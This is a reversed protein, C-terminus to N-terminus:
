FSSNYFSNITTQRKEIGNTASGDPKVTALQFRIRTDGSIFPLFEARVQSHDLNYSSYDLNLRNIQKAILLSDTNETVTRYLVHFVVQVTWVKGDFDSSREDGMQVLEKIDEDLAAKYGAKSANRQNVYDDYGCRNQANVSGFLTAIGLSLTLLKHKM